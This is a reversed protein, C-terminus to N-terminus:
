KFYMTCEKFVDTESSTEFYSVSNGSLNWKQVSLAVYCAPDVFEGYWLSKIAQEKFVNDVLPYHTCAYLIHTAKSKIALEVIEKVSSAVGDSNGKEIDGALLLPSFVTYLIKKGELIHQYIDSELTAKTGVILVRDKEVFPIRTVAGVMDLYKEPPIGNDRLLEETTLVSMSNCASVFHTVGQAQLHILIENIFLVIEIESRNGYPARACDGFYLINANTSKRIEKLVSFGGVGSDFIGILNNKKM